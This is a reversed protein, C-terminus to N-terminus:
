TQQKGQLDLRRHLFQLRHVPRREQRVDADRHLGDVAQALAGRLRRHGDVDGDGDRAPAATKLGHRSMM